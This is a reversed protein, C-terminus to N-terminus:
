ADKWRTFMAAVRANFAGHEPQFPGYEAMDSSLRVHIMATPSAAQRAAVGVM